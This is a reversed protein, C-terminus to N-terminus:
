DGALEAAYVEIWTYCTQPDLQTADAPNDANLGHAEEWGDPIGDADRDPPPTGPDRDIWGGAQDVTDVPSGTGSRADEVIQTDVPDRLPSTAGAGALVAETADDVPQTSIAPAAFPAEARRDPPLIVGGNVGDGVTEWDDVSDDPRFPGRNDRVWVRAEAFAMAERRNRNTASGPLFANGVLNARIVGLFQTGADGYDYIVNNVLDFTTEWTSGLEPNSLLNHALLNHHFSHDQIDAGLAVARGNPGDTHSSNVLAHAFLSWQITVDHADYWSSLLEDSTWGLSVHDVVVDHAGGGISLAQRCCSPETSPGPRLRLHRVVVNHTSIRLSSETFASPDARIEIGDGPATQGLISVYPETILLGSQLVITGGTRFVVTRPGSASLAARLSGPGDDELNTVLLVAGGRGAPTMAGFGEAGPFAPLPDVCHSTDDGTGTSGTPDPNAGTTDTPDPSTGATASGDTAGPLDGVSTADLNCASVSGLAIALIPAARM